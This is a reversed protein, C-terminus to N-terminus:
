LQGLPSVRELEAKSEESGMEAAHLYGELVKLSSHGTMNKLRALSGGKRLYYTCFAHRLTHPTINPLGYKKQHKRFAQGIGNPTCPEGYRTVFVEGAWDKSKTRRDARRMYGRLIRVLENSLGVTRPGTKGKVLMLGEDLMVNDTLLSVAEGVRIGTGLLLMFLTHDRHGMFTNTKYFGKWRRLDAPTPIYERRPTAQIAPLTKRWDKLGASVCDEDVTAWIFLTRLCRLLQLKTSAAWQRHELSDLFSLIDAKRMRQWTHVDREGMFRFFLQLNRQYITLSSDKCPKYAGDTGRRRSNLFVTEIEAWIM